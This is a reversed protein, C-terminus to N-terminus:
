MRSKKKNMGEATEGLFLRREEAGKGVRSTGMAAMRMTRGKVLKPMARGM